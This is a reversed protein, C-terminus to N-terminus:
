LLPCYTQTIHYDEDTPVIDEKIRGEKDLLVKVLKDEKLYVDLEHIRRLTLDVKTYDDFIMLFSYGPAAAPFLEM